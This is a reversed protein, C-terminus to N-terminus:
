LIILFHTSKSGQCHLKQNGFVSSLSAVPTVILVAVPMPSSIVADDDDEEIGDAVAVVLIVAVLLVAGLFLNKCSYM